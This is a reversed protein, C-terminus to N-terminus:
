GGNAFGRSRILAIAFKTNPLIALNTPCVSHTQHTMYVFYRSHVIKLRRKQDQHNTSVDKHLRTNGKESLDFRLTKVYEIQLLSSRPKERQKLLMLEDAAAVVLTNTHPVVPIQAAWHAQVDAGLDPPAHPPKFPVGVARPQKQPGAHM